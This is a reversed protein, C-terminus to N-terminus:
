DCILIGQLHDYEHQIIRAFMDDAIMKIPNFNEDMAEIEITTYRPINIIAGPVSLCGEEKYQLEDTLPTIKPNIFVWNKENREPNDAIIIQKNVGVQPAALGVGCNAKLDKMRKILQEIESTLETVPESIERLCKKVSKTDKTTIIRINKKKSM